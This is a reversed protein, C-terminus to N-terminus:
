IRTVWSKNRVTFLAYIFQWYLFVEYFLMYILLGPIKKKGYFLVMIYRIFMFGIWSPILTTVVMLPHTFMNVVLAVMLGFSMFPVTLECLLIQVFLIPRTKLAHTLTYTSERIFGRKWRQQQKLFGKITSPSETYSVALPAYKVDYGNRLVLNTLHRDESHTCREGLFEQNVFEEIIEGIVDSRYAALCGSCCVVMGLASQAKKYINLGVWYYAGIMRTLLNQNENLLLVDGTSAGVKKNILPEVVRVIAYKDLITDSDITVIFEHDKIMQTIAHHLAHRKGRNQEFVHLSVGQDACFKAMAAKTIGKTSGDDIVFLDKNGEADILAQITRKFLPEEENFSPIIVAIKQGSYAPFKENKVEGILLLIAIYWTYALMIGFYVRHYVEWWGPRFSSLLLFVVSAGLIGFLSFYLAHHARAVSKKSM